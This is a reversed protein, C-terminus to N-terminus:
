LIYMGLTGSADPGGYFTAHAGNIWRGGYGGVLSSWWLCLFGVLLLLVGVFGM